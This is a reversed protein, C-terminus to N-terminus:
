ANPEQLSNYSNTPVALALGILFWIYLFHLQVGLMGILIFLLILQGSYRNTGAYKRYIRYLLFAFLLFGVIGNEILLSIFVGLGPADWEKVVPWIGLYDPNNRLIAYNGLGIGFFPNELFMNPAIFVAAIRGMVFNYDTKRTPLIEQYNSLLYIYEQSIKTFAAIFVPVILLIIIPKLWVTHRFRRYFKYSLWAIIGVLGAKSKAMLIVTLFVAQYFWRKDELLFTLIFLSCYLLGLPGGEVYFGRLRITPDRFPSADYLLLSDNLSTVKLFALLYAGIFIFSVAVNLKLVAKLVFSISEGRDLYFKFTKYSITAFALCAMYEIFRAISIIYPRKLLSLGNINLYFTHTLNVLFTILLVAIFFALFYLLYKNLRRVALLLFPITLLSILENLKVDYFKFETFHFCIVTYVSFLLLRVNSLQIQVTEKM